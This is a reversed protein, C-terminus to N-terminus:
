SDRAARWDASTIVTGFGWLEEARSGNVDIIASMAAVMADRELAGWFSAAADTAGITTTGLLQLRLDDTVELNEAEFGNSGTMWRLWEQEDATLANYAAFTTTSRVLPSSVKPKGVTITGRTLNIIDLVGAQTNEPVYGLGLPDTTVETKLAALDAPDTRDFAM